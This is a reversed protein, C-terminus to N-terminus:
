KYQHTFQEQHIRDEPLAVNFNYPVKDQFQWSFKVRNLDSNSDSIECSSDIILIEPLSALDLAVGLLVFQSIFLQEIWRAEDMTLPSSQVEYEKTTIQDYFSYLSHTIAVSREVKTKSTTVACFSATEIVNFCNLFTFCVDPTFNHVYFTFTRKGLSITYALLKSVKYNLEALAEIIFDYSIYITDIGVNEYELELIKVTVTTIVDEKDLFVCYANLDNREQHHLISIFEKSHPYTRKSTLTTLFYNSSFETASIPMIFASYLINFSYSAEINQNVNMCTVTFDVYASKSIIMHQMVISQIDFLMAVGEFPTITTCFFETEGCYFAVVLSDLDTSFKLDRLQSSFILDPIETILSTAM